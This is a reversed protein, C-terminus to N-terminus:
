RFEDEELEHGRRARFNGLLDWDLRLMAGRVHTRTLAFCGGLWIMALAPGWWGFARFALIFAASSIDGPVDFDLPAIREPPDRLEVRWGGEVAHSVVSAVETSMSLPTTQSM